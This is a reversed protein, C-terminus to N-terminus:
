SAACGRALRLYPATRDLRHTTAHHDPTHELRRAKADCAGSGSGQGGKSCWAEIRNGFEDAAGARAGRRRADTHQAQQARRRGRQRVGLDLRRQANRREIPNGEVANEVPQDIAAESVPIGVGVPDVAKRRRGGAFVRRVHMKAAFRTATNETQVGRRRGRGQQRRTEQERAHVEVQAAQARLAARQPATASVPTSRLCGRHAPQGAAFQLAGSATIFPSDAQFARRHTKTM